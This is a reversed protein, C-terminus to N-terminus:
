HEQAADRGLGTRLLDTDRAHGQRSVDTVLGDIENLV